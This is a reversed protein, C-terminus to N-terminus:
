KDAKKTLAKNESEPEKKNETDEPEKKEGILRKSKLLEILKDGLIKVQYPEGKRLFIRDGLWISQTPFWGESRQLARRKDRIAKHIVNSLKSAEITDGKNIITRGLLTVHDKAVTM